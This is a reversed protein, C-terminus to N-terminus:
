GNAMSRSASDGYDMGITNQSGVSKIANQIASALKDNGSQIAQLIEDLVGALVTLDQGKQQPEREPNIERVAEPREPQRTNQAPTVGPQM